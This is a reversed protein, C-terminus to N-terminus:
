SEGRMEKNRQQMEEWILEQQARITVILENFTIPDTMEILEHLALTRQAVPDTPGELSLDTLLQEFRAIQSM